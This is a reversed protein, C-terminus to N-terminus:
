AYLKEVAREMDEDFVHAYVETTRINSHGAQRQVMRLNYKSAKYLHSCYTHRAHHISHETIGVRRCCRTFMKQLARTTM